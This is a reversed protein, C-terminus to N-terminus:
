DGDLIQYQPQHRIVPRMGEVDPMLILGIARGIGIAGMHDLKFHVRTGALDIDQAIRHHIIEARHDVRQHQFTLHMAPDRLPDALRKMFMRGKVRLALKDGARQHIVRQRTGIIQRSEIDAEAVNGALVINEPHLSRALGAGDARRLRYNRRQGVCKAHGM